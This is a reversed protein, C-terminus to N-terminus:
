GAALLDDETLRITEGSLVKTLFTSSAALSSTSNWV